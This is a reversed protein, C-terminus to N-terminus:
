KVWVEVPKDTRGRHLHRILEHVVPSPELEDGTQSDRAVYSLYLRDRACALTELFLYKDRERPSVDGVQRRALTLDLPDPGDAAPFRGEGLGCLFVVRFPLARMELLPSVVVGDALYHGRSGTLGELAERLSECAIRYGVKRGAVDQDRLAQIKQLCQSLARQESDSDAALYANVMRVFFDSWETMSLQASRAFRADAVLSRVLVLLRAADALGDAPQDHPLYDADDFHFVQDDDGNRSGTMFAGLVLRRMGQEWHFSDRDIYTGEHDDRDAGHVIELGLCWDRWRNVDAEPFRAQVAPHTLVKLLEPRTFEGLPLALLLLVAEIAQCEGALPLDVMNFPIGHLEEFIARFHAQYAAQNPKDALLVAIDRFRLRDTPSGRHIDDERILKWIENAVVEAERRIGPCALIALSDDPEFPADSEPSRRLIERQLRGLVTSSEGLM